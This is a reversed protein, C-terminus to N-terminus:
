LSDVNKAKEFLHWKNFQALFTPGSTTKRFNHRAGPARNALLDRFITCKFDSPFRQNHTAQGVYKWRRGPDHSLKPCIFPETKPFTPLEFTMGQRLWRKM